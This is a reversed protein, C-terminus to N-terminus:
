VLPVIYFLSKTIGLDVDLDVLQQALNLMQDKQWEPYDLELPLNLQLNSSAGNGLVLEQVKSRNSGWSNVKMKYQIYLESQDSVVCGKKLGPFPFDLKVSKTVRAKAGLAIVKSAMELTDSKYQEPYAINIGGYTESVMKRWAPGLVLEAVQEPYRGPEKVDVGYLVELTTTDEVANVYQGKGIPADVRGSGETNRVRTGGRRGRTSEESSTNSTTPRTVTNTTPRTVTNSSTPRTVTNSTSPRTVTNSTPRTVTNPNTPRSNTSTSTSKEDGTSAERTWHTFDRGRTKAM